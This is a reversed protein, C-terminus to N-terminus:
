TCQWLTASLSCTDCWFAYLIGGSGWLWGRGDAFRLSDLQLLFRMTRQCGPCAPYEPSQIWTPEGGIRHLNEHGNSIAWDQLRWRPPTRRITLATDPLPDAPFKPQQRALGPGAPRVRSGDHAFYMVPRSWGLCSLCTVVQLEDPVRVPAQDFAILRHLSGGCVACLTDVVGGFRGAGVVDSDLHWTPHHPLAEPGNGKPPVLFGRPFEVHCTPDTVLRRIEGNSQEIGVGTLCADVYPSPPLVDGIAAVAVAWGRPSRSELLCDWAREADAPALLRAVLREIEQDDAARWPWAAYYTEGNPAIDWLVELYPRLTHPAQLSLSSILSAAQSADADSDARLSAVAADAVAPLSEDPVFALAADVNDLSWTTLVSASRVILDTLREPTHRVLDVLQQPWGRRRNAMNSLLLEVDVSM